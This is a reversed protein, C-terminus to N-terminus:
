IHYISNSIDFSSNIDAKIQEIIKETIPFQQPKIKSLNEWM